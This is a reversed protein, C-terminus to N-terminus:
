LRDHIIQLSKGAEACFSQSFVTQIQVADIIRLCAAMGSELIVVIYTLFAVYDPIAATEVLEDPEPRKM